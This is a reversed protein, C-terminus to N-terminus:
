PVVVTDGPKLDINQRLNKGKLLERYDFPYALQRGNETRMVLIKKDDAFEKLGGAIAILQLVTMPAGISYPGPKEVLGTIFVKRSNIEKVVVTPSPDEIYRRAEVLIRERLQEPTLGAAQIDNLLPLTINGDPRVVVDASMDKDRWFVVSLTDNPGIVYAPPPIIAAVPGLGAARPQVAAPVGIKQPDAPGAQASLAALAALVAASVSLFSRKAGRMTQLRRHARM